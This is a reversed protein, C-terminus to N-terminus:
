GTSRVNVTIKTNRRLSKFRPTIDATVSKRNSDARKTPETIRRVFFAEDSNSTSFLACLFALLSGCFRSDRDANRAAFYNAAVASGSELPLSKSSSVFASRAGASASILRSHQVPALYIGNHDCWGWSTQRGVLLNIEVVKKAWRNSLRYSGPWGRRTSDGILTGKIKKSFHSLSPLSALLAFRLIAEFIFIQFM